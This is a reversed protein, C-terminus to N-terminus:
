MKNPRGHTPALYDLRSERFTNGIRAQAGLENRPAFAVTFLERSTVLPASPVPLEAGTDSDNKDGGM